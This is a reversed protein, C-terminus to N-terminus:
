RGTLARLRRLNRESRARGLGHVCGPQYPVLRVQRLHRIQREVGRDACVPSPIPSRRRRINLRDRRVSLDRLVGAEDGTQPVFLQQAFRGLRQAMGTGCRLIPNGVFHQQEIEVGGQAREVGDGSRCRRIVDEVPDERRKANSIAERKVDAATIVSVRSPWPWHSRRRRRRSAIARAGARCVEAVGLM